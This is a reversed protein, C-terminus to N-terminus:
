DTADYEGRIADLLINGLQAISIYLTPDPCQSPYKKAIALHTGSCVECLWLSTQRGGEIPTHPFSSLRGPYDCCDCEMDDGDETKRKRPTRLDEKTNM